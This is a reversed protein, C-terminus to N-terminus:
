SPLRVVNNSFNENLATMSVIPKYRELKQLSEYVGDNEMLEVTKGKYEAIGKGIMGRVEDPTIGDKALSEAFDEIGVRAVDSVYNMNSRVGRDLMMTHVWTRVVQEMVPETYNVFGGCNGAILSFAAYTKKGDIMEIEPTTLTETPYYSKRKVDQWGFADPNPEADQVNLLVRDVGSKQMEHIGNQLEELLAKEKGASASFISM